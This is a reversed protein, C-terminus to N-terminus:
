QKPFEEILGVSMRAVLLADIININNDGTVDACREEFNLPVLGVYHQAIVLADLINIEEDNKADGTILRTNPYLGCSTIENDKICGDGEMCISVCNPDYVGTVWIYDGPRFNGYNDLIYKKGNAAQFLICEVGNILTGCLEFPRKIDVWISDLGFDAIEELPEFEEMLRSNKMIIRGSDSLLDGGGVHGLRKDNFGIKTSFWIEGDPWVYVADLGFGDLPYAEPTFNAMLQANTRYIIGNEALLDGHNIQVGLSESFFSEEFSFLLVRRANVVPFIDDVNNFNDLAVEEYELIPGIWNLSAADLGVLPIPPMPNFPSVLTGNRRVIFGQDSLLDGDDLVNAASSIPYDENLSFWIHKKYYSTISKNYPLPPGIVADLGYGEEEQTSISNFCSLLQKNTRIVQGTVSLLDGDTIRKNGLAGSTFPMETSFMIRPWPVAVLEIKYHVNGFEGTDIMDIDIDIMPFKVGEPVQVYGSDFPIPASRDINISISMRQKQKEVFQKSIIYSGNGNHGWYIDPNNVPRFELDDITFRMYGSDLDTAADANMRLPCLLFEGSIPHISIPALCPPDVQPPCPDVILNSGDILRYRVASEVIPEASSLAFAMHKPDIDPYIDPYQEIIIDDIPASSVDTNSSIDNTKINAALVKLNEDIPSTAWGWVEPGPVPGAVISLWYRHGAIVKFPKGLEIEYQFEHEYKYISEESASEITERVVTGYYDQPFESTRVTYILKFPAAANSTSIENACDYIRIIFYEPVPPVTNIIQIDPIDSCWGPFSGWWKIKSIVPPVLGTPPVKFDDVPYKYPLITVIEDSSLIDVGDAIDPPQSFWCLPDEWRDVFKLIYDDEIACFLEGAYDGTINWSLANDVGSGIRNLKFPAPNRDRFVGKPLYRGPLNVSVHALMRETYIPQGEWCGMPYIFLYEGPRRILGHKYHATLKFEEPVPNIEWFLEPLQPWEPLITPYTSTSWTWDLLKEDIAIQIKESGPPVHDLMKVADFELNTMPYLGDVVARLIDDSQGGTNGTIKVNIWEEPMLLTPIPIPNSFVSQIVIILIFCIFLRKLYM